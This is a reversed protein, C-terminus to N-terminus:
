RLVSTNPPPPVNNLRHGSEYKDLAGIITQTLWGQKSDALIQGVVALQRITSDESIRALPQPSSKAVPTTPEAPVARRAAPVLPPKEDLVYIPELALPKNSSATKALVAETKVPGAATDFEALARLDPAVAPTLRDLMGAVRKPTIQPIATMGTASFERGHAPPTAVPPANFQSVIPAPGSKGAGIPAGVPVGAPVGAVDTPVDAPNRPTDGGGDKDTFMAITHEGMDKGTNHKIVVDIVSAVAGIPGGLVTSGFMKAGPDLQDGTISRYLTGVVPIHHLPNIMDLFDRFTFGDDGFLKFSKPKYDESNGFVAQAGTQRAAGAAEIVFAQDAAGIIQSVM